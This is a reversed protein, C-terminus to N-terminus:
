EAKVNFFLRFQDTDTDIVIQWIGLHDERLSYPIRWRIFIGKNTGSNYHNLRTNEKQDLIQLRYKLPILTFNASFCISDGPNFSYLNKKLNNSATLSCNLM